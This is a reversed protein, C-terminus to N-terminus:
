GIPHLATWGQWAMYGALILLLACSFYPAKRM